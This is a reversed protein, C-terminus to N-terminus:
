LTLTLRLASSSVVQMNIMNWKGLEKLGKDRPWTNCPWKFKYEVVETFGADRMWSAYSWASAPDRGIKRTAEM